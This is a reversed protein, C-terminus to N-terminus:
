TKDAGDTHGNPRASKGWKGVLRKGSWLEATTFHSKALLHQARLAAQADDECEIQEYSNIRDEGDTFYCRYSRNAATPTDTASSKSSDPMVDYGGQSGGDFPTNKQATM